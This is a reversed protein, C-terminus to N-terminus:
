GLFAKYALYSHYLDFKSIQEYPAHMSLVPVGCDIVEMGKNALIYAITGGGGEDVKGLECFQHAVGANEFIGRIEGIFEANADSSGSKGRAGTYKSFAIGHGLYAVNRKESVSPFTPDFAATVDASLCKSNSLLRQLAFPSTNGSLELLMGLFLEFNQSCMGSNGQSGVEEKDSLICVATRQPLKLESLAVLEPFACVRDDHGYSGILSRDFGISRAKFAPVIELEASTFDRETIGYKENLLQLINRKVAKSIEQENGEEDKETAPITGVIINLDEGAIAEALPKRAQKAALHPLLDSIIFVPDKEEEGINIEVLTGDTRAVVGHLSLPITTWQYKRLGGYYHTKFLAIESDEYLPNPRLDLRPSDIHAGTLNIGGELEDKGIVAAYISKKKNVYYVKDGTALKKKEAIDVFGAKELLKVSTKVCERETKSADLYAMYKDGFDFIAKKSKEDTSLWGNKDEYELKLSDKKGASASVDAKKNAKTEKIKKIEKAEKTEKSKKLAM